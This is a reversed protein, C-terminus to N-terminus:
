LLDRPGPFLFKKAELSILKNLSMFTNPVTVSYSPGEKDPPTSFEYKCVKQHHFVADDDEVHVVDLHIQKDSM